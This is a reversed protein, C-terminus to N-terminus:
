QRPPQKQHFSYYYSSVPKLIATNLPMHKRFACLFIFFSFLVVAVFSQPIWRPGEVKHDHFDRVSRSHTVCEIRIISQKSSHICFQSHLYSGWVSCLVRHETSLYRANMGHHIFSAELRAKFYAFKSPFELKKERSEM